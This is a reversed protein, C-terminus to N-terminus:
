KKCKATWCVLGDTSCRVCEDGDDNDDDDGGHHGGHSHHDLLTAGAEDAFLARFGVQYPRGKADRARLRVVRGGEIM